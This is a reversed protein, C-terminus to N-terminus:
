AAHRVLAADLHGTPQLPIAARLGAGPMRIMYHAYGCVDTTLVPLGVAMAELLVAGTNENYAPHLLVDAAAMLEPVDTRGGLFTIQAQVGCTRALASYPEAKGDGAILLHLRQVRSDPALAAMARIARDVGKTRFGSGVMLVVQEDDGIGIERRIRTRSMLPSTFHGPIRGQLTPPLITFRSDQTGYFEQYESRANESLVLVHTHTNRSFVSNEM